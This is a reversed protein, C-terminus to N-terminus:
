IKLDFYYNRGENKEIFESIRHGKFDRDKRNTIKLLMQIAENIYGVETLAIGKMARSKAKAVKSHVVDCAIYEMFTVLPIAKEHLNM